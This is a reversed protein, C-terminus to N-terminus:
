PAPPTATREYLWFWMAKLQHLSREAQGIEVALNPEERLGSRLEDAHQDLEDIGQELTRMEERSAEDPLGAIRRRYRRAQWSWYRTVFANGRPPETFAAYRRAREAADVRRPYVALPLPTYGM